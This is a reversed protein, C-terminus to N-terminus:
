TLVISRYPFWNSNRFHQNRSNKMPLLLSARVKGLREDESSSARRRVDRREGLRKCKRSTRSHLASCYLYLWLRLLTLLNAQNSKEPHLPVIISHAFVKLPLRFLISSIFSCVANLPMMEHSLENALLNGAGCRNNFIHERPVTKLSRGSWRGMLNHRRAPRRSATLTGPKERPRCLVRKHFAGASPRFHLYFSM